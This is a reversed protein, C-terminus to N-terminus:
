RLEYDVAFGGYDQSQGIYTKHSEGGIDALIDADGIAPLYNVREDFPNGVQQIGTLSAESAPIAFGKYHQASTAPFTIASTTSTNGALWEGETPNMNDAIVAAYRTLTHVSVSELGYTAQTLTKTLSVRLHGVPTQDVQLAALAQALTIGSGGVTANQWDTQGLNDNIAQVIMAGTIEADFALSDVLDLIFSRLESAMILPDGDTPFLVAARDILEQRNRATM